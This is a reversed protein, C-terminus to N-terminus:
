SKGAKRAMRKGVRFGQVLPIRAPCIYGCCGCERCDMLGEDMARKYEFHDILKFLMTPQLGMPCAEVCRGCQICQTRPASNVERDTLALIGSTGKTVPSDLDVVTQGMMPGGSVIKRPVQTFGGCEEILEGMPTGIRVKLNAPKAIAGGGVTVLREILPKRLAVAEYIAFLTGANAAVCGIDLPLGGSPVERGTIARILQKEDGQPYKIRLPAVKYPLGTKKIEREMAVIADPKNTEIGIYVQDPDLIQAAIRVGQLVEATREVMLRHDASLYPECETGNMILFECNRGKPVSFKVHTPFTAGGMGVVGADKILELLEAPTAGSWDHLDQPKGLRDFEGQLEIVVADTRVGNPLHISRIEKVVGPVPSHINASVFGAAKGILMGEGVTDGKGVVAEAPAGIHQQLPVVSVSPIIANWSASRRTSEKREVPHIGGLPFTLRRM